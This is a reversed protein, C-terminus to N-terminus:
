ENTRGVHLRCILVPGAYFAVSRIGHMAGRGKRRGPREEIGGRGTPPVTSPSIIIVRGDRCMGGARLKEADPCAPVLAHM